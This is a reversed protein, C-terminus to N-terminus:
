PQGRARWSATSRRRVPRRGAGGSGRSIPMGIAFVLFGEAFRRLPKKPSQVLCPPATQRRLAPVTGQNLGPSQGWHRKLLCGFRFLRGENDSGLSPKLGLSSDGFRDVKCVHSFIFARVGWVVAPIRAKACVPGPARSVSGRPLLVVRGSVSLGSRGPRNHAHMIGSLARRRPASERGGGPSDQEQPPPANRASRREAM